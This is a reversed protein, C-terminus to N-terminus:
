SGAASERQLGNLIQKVRTPSIGYKRGLRQIGMGELYDRTLAENRETMAIGSGVEGPEWEQAQRRSASSM